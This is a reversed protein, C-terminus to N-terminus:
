PAKGKDEGGIVMSILKVLWDRERDGALNGLSQRARTLHVRLLRIADEDSVRAEKIYDVLWQGRVGETDVASAIMALGGVTTFSGVIASKVDPPTRPSSLLTYISRLYDLDTTAPRQAQAQAQSSQELTGLLRRAGEVREAYGM